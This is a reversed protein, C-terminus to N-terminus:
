VRDTERYTVIFTEYVYQRKVGLPQMYVINLLFDLLRFKARGAGSTAHRVTAMMIRTTKSEGHKHM